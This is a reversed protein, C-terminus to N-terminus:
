NTWLKQAVGKYLYGGAILTDVIDDVASKVKAATVENGGNTYINAAIIAKTNAYNSM